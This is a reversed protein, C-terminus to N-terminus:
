GSCLAPRHERDGALRPVAACDGAATKALSSVLAMPRRPREPWPFGAAPSGCPWIGSRISASGPNGSLRFASYLLVVGFLPLILRFRAISATGALIFVLRMVVAGLIGWFLVRYQYQRPVQFYRFVVAFVFVNDMSLSWELVYGALFQLAATESRWWWVLANFGAALLCWFVVTLASEAM